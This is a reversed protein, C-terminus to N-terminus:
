DNTQYDPTVSVKCFYTTRDGDKSKSGPFYAPDSRYEPIYCSRGPLSSPFILTLTTTTNLLPVCNPPNCNKDKKSCGGGGGGGGNGNGESSVVLFFIILLPITIIYKFKAKM